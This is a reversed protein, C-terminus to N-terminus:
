YAKTKFVDSLTAGINDIVQGAKQGPTGAQQGVQSPVSPVPAPPPNVRPPVVVNTVAKQETFYKWVWWIFLIVLVVLVIIWFTRWFSPSKTFEANVVIPVPNTSM